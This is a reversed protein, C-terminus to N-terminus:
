GGCLQGRLVELPQRLLDCGDTAGDRLVRMALQRERERRRRRRSESNSNEGVARETQAAVRLAILWSLALARLVRLLM